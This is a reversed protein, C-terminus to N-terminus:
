EAGTTTDILAREDMAPTQIAPVWKPLCCRADDLGFANCVPLAVEGFLSGPRIPLKAATAIGAGPVTGSCGADRVLAPQGIPGRVKSRLPATPTGSQFSDTCLARV